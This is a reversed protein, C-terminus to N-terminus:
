RLAGLAGLFGALMDWGSSHGLRGLRTAAEIAASTDRSALAIAVDHLPAYAEGDLLDALLTASIRHTRGSAVARVRDAAARWPATEIAGADSLVRRAFFAGGVLDDGSPTLGPGLGVLREAIGAAAAADDMACATVFATVDGVARDLPSAPSQGVLLAGLGGPVGVQPLARGLDRAARTM